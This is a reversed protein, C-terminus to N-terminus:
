DRLIVAENPRLRDPQSNPPGCSTLITEAGKFDCSRAQGTCNILVSLDKRRYGVVGDPTDLLEFDDSVLAPWSGRLLILNRYLQLISHPDDKLAAFNATAANAPFPIATSHKWGYDPPGEWPIPARGADRGGPDIQRTIIADELGFEDGAYIFPSGPLTLLLVAAARATEPSGYRSLLRPLDHNGLVASPWRKATRAIEQTTKLSDKIEGADWSIEALRYNFILHLRDNTGFYGPIKDADRLLLEGVIVPQHTYGELLRRIKRLHDRIKPRHHFHAWDAGVLSPPLDAYNEDKAILNIVDARFGDVGKDLWFRLTGLMAQVVEPNDWNLDPQQPLFSHLYYQDTRDDFTWASQEKLNSLWNNPQDRWIYWDRKPNDRASSSEKFWPHQDSTHNPIWDLVIRINLGHAADLLRDFDEMTGFLPNISIYDAVDYGGDNMPSVYIPSLWIADVGLWKLYDLRKAIGALDGVGDADSDSFSTPYIQYFVCSKWWQPDRAKSPM